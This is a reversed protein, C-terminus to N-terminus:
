FAATRYRNVIIPSHSHRPNLCHPVSSPPLFPPLIVPPLERRLGNRRSKECSPCLGWVSLSALLSSFVVRQACFFLSLVQDGGVAGAVCSPHLTPAAAPTPPAGSLPLPCLVYLSFLPDAMSLPAKASTPLSSPPHPNSACPYTGLPSRETTRARAHINHQTNKTRTRIHTSPPPSLGVTGHDCFFALVISTSLLARLSSLMNPHFRTQPDPSGAHHTSLRSQLWKWGCARRCGERVCGFLIALLPRPWFLLLITSSPMQAHGPCTKLHHQSQTLCAHLPLALFLSLRRACRMCQAAVRGGGDVVVCRRARTHTHPPHPQRACLLLRFVPADTHTHPPGAPRRQLRLFVGGHLLIFATMNNLLQLIYIRPAVRLSSYGVTCLWTHTKHGGGL